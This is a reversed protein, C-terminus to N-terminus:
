FTSCNECSWVICWNTCTSDCGDSKCDAITCDGALCTISCEIVQCALMCDPQCGSCPGVGGDEPFQLGSKDFDLKSM